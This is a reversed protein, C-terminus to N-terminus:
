LTESPFSYLRLNSLLFIHFLFSKRPIGCGSEVRVLRWLSGGVRKRSVERVGSQFAHCAAKEIINPASHLNHLPCPAGRAHNADNDCRPPRVGEQEPAPQSRADHIPKHPSPTSGYHQESLLRRTGIRSM